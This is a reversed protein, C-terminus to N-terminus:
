RVEGARLPAPYDTWAQMLQEPSPCSRWETTPGGLWSRLVAYLATSWGAARLNMPMGVLNGHGLVM